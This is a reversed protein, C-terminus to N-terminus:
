GAGGIVNLASYLTVHGSANKKNTLVRLQRYEDQTRSNYSDSMALDQRLEATLNCLAWLNILRPANVTFDNEDDDAVLDDYDKLYHRGLTYDRDPIPYAVYEDAEDSGIRSYWLPMGYGNTLFLNDYEMQSIKVLPYRVNGYEIYFGDYQTSPVLVGDGIVPIIPDHEAITVQDKVENFWLRRFKWYAISDNIGQGVDNASVATNSPDILRKSVYTKMEGFNM